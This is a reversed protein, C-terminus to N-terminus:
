VPGSEAVEDFTTMAWTVGVTMRVPVPSPCNPWTMVNVVVTVPEPPTDGVPVRAHCM